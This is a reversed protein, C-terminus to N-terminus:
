LMFKIVHGCNVFFSSIEFRFYFRCYVKIHNGQPIRINEQIDQNSGEENPFLIETNNSDTDVLNHENHKGVNNAQINGNIGSHRRTM